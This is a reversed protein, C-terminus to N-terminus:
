TATIEAHSGNRSVDTSLYAQELFEDVKLKVEYGLRTCAVGESALMEDSLATRRDALRRRRV